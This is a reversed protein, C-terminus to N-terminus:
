ELSSLMLLQKLVRNQSTERIEGALFMEDVVSYVQFSFTSLNPLVYLSAASFCCCCHHCKLHPVMNRSKGSECKRKKLNKALTALLSWVKFYTDSTRQREFRNLEKRGFDFLSRETGPRFSAWKYLEGNMVHSNTLMFQDCRRTVDGSMDVPKLKSFGSLAM